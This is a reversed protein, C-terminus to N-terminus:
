RSQPCPSSTEPVMVRHPTVRGSVLTGTAVRRTNSGQPDWCITGTVGQWPSGKQIEDRIDQRDLGARRMAEILLTVTDYTHASLYDGHREFRKFFAADFLATKDSPAYLIPFIVGEAAQGAREIFRRLSMCPGGFVLGDYGGTRLSVLLDASDHWPAAIVVAEANTKMIKDGLAAHDVLGPQFEFHYAPLLERTRFCKNLEDTLCHSDHDVSSALVFRGGKVRLAIAEALAYAQLHQGPLLSFMWPVNALNATRDANAGSLLPLRAKAVVQEALHTSPGDIGGIIAWVRDQYAMRTLDAVGSGWPNESWGPILKFPRGNFGGGLNAQEIAMSAACWLDGGKPHSPENPGFYGILTEQTHDPQVDTAQLLCPLTILLLIFVCNRM